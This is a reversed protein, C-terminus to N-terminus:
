RKAGKANASPEIKMLLRVQLRVSSRVKDVEKKFKDIKTDVDKKLQNIAQMLILFAAKICVAVYM